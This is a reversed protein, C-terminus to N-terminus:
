PAAALDREEIARIISRHQGEDLRFVTANGLSAHTFLNAQVRLPRRCGWVRDLDIGTKWGSSAGGENWGPARLRERQEFENENHGPRYEHPPKEAVTGAAIVGGGSLWIYSADGVNIQTRFDPTARYVRVVENPRLGLGLYQDLADFPNLDPRGPVGTWKRLPNAAWLWANM